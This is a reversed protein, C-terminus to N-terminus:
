SKKEEEAKRQGLIQWDYHETMSISKFILFAYEGLGRLGYEAKKYDLRLRFGCAGDDRVAPFCHFLLRKSADDWSELRDDKILFGAHTVAHRVEAVARFWGVLDLGRTNSKEGTAIGEAFSRLLTLIKDNNIGRYGFRVLREWYEIDTRQKGQHKNKREFKDLLAADAKDSCNLLYIAVQDFLFTEFADYGQSVAWGSNRSIIDDLTELYEYDATQFSGSRFYTMWGDAPFDTLDTVALSVGSFIPLLTSSKDELAKKIRKRDNLLRNKLVFLLGLLFNLRALLRGVPNEIPNIAKM